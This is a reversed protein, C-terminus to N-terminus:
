HSSCATNGLLGRAAKRRLCPDTQERVSGISAPSLTRMLPAACLQPIGNGSSRATLHVDQSKKEWRSPFRCEGDDRTHFFTTMHGVGMPPPPALVWGSIGM